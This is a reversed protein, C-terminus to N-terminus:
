EEIISVLEIIIQEVQAAMDDLTVKDTDNDSEAKMDVLRASVAYLLEMVTASEISASNDTESSNSICKTSISIDDSLNSLNEISETLAIGADKKIDKISGTTKIYVSWEGAIDNSPVANFTVQKKETDLIANKSDVRYVIPKEVEADENDIAFEIIGHYINHIPAKSSKGDIVIHIEDNMSLGAIYNINYNNENEAVIEAVLTIDNECPIDIRGSLVNVDETLEQKVENSTSNASANFNTDEETVLELHNDDAMERSGDEYEIVWADFEGSNTAISDMPDEDLHDIIIGVKDSGTTRVKDGLTFKCQDPQPEAVFRNLYMNIVTNLLGSERDTLELTDVYSKLEELENTSLEEFLEPRGDQIIEDFKKQKARSQQVESIRVKDKVISEYTMIANSVCDEFTDESYTDDYEDVLSGKDKDIVNISISADGIEFNLVYPEDETGVTVVDIGNINECELFKYKNGCAKMITEQLKM